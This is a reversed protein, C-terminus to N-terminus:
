KSVLELTTEIYCMMVDNVTTLEGVNDTQLETISWIMELENNIKTELM